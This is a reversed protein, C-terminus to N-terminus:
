GSHMQQMRRQVVGPFFFSAAALARAVWPTVVEGRRRDLGRLVEEACREPTLHFRAQGEVAAPISGGLVHERFPTKVHGPCVCLVHVGRPALEMRLADSLGNLAFKSASYLGSWPLATKGGISSINVVAGGSPMTPALRRCLELPAFFNLEFLYRAQEPETELTPAYLGVGASNVLIDVGGMREVAQECLRARDEDRTLDASVAHQEPARAKDLVPQLRDVDRGVLLLRAGRRAFAFACARGIGSSAGTILVRQNSIEVSKRPQRAFAM